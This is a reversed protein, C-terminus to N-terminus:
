WLFVYQPLYDAHLIFLSPPVPRIHRQYFNETSIIYKIIPIQFIDLIINPEGMQQQFLNLNQEWHM